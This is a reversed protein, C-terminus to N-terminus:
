YTYNGCLVVKMFSYEYVMLVVLTRFSYKVRYTNLETDTLKYCTNTTILRCFIFFFYIYLTRNIVM